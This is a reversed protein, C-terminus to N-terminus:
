RGLLALAINALRNFHGENEPNTKAAATAKSALNALEGQTFPSIGGHTGTTETPFHAEAPLTTDIPPKDHPPTPTTRTQRRFAKAM